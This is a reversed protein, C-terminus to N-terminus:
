SKSRVIERFRPDTKLDALYPDMSVEARSYGGAVARELHDFAADRHGAATEVLAARFQVYINTPDIELALRMHEKAKEPHKSHAYALALIMQRNADRPTVALDKELMEIAKRYAEAARPGGDRTWRVTDALNFWLTADGPNLRIAREFSRAADDFRGMLYLCFGLNSLTDSEPRVAIAKEYRAVAEDYKGMMQYTVALNDLTRVNDPSRKLAEEFAAAAEDYEGHTVQFVGLHSWTSWWGPQIETAKRYAAEAGADDGVKDLASALGMQAEVSDPRLALATRFEELAVKPDDVLLQIRGMTEHVEYLDPDIAVARENAAIAREAWSRDQRIQYKALYAEALASQVIANGRGMEELIGIAADVSPENDYRRLYGLAELYRDQSFGSGTASAPVAGTTHASSPAPAHSSSPGSGSPQAPGESATAAIESASATRGEVGLARFAGDAIQDQLELIRAASGEAIGGAIQVGADDLLTWTARVRDSEFQLSGRLVVDAGVDSAAVRADDQVDVGLANMPLVALGATGSLRAGVTEAFGEGVLGGNKRGSLDRFPLVAVHTLNM